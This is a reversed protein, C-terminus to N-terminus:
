ISDDAAEEDAVPGLQLHGFGSGVLKAKTGILLQSSALVALSRNPSGAATLPAPQGIPVLVERARAHSPHPSTLEPPRWTRWPSRPSSPQARHSPPWAQSASM